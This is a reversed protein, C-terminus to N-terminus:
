SWRRRASPQGVESCDPAMPRSYALGLPAVPAQVAAFLGSFKQGVSGPKGPWCRAFRVKRDLNGFFILLRRHRM